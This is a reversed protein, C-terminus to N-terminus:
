QVAESFVGSIRPQESRLLHNNRMASCKGICRERGKSPQPSGARRSVGHCFWRRDCGNGFLPQENTFRPAGEIRDSGSAVGLLVRGIGM